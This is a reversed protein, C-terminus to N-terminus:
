ETIQMEMEGQRKMAQLSREQQHQPLNQQSHVVTNLLATVSPRRPQKWTQSIILSATRLNELPALNKVEKPPFEPTCSPPRITLAHKTKFSAAMSAEFPRHTGVLLAPVTAERGRWRGHLSSTQLTAAGSLQTVTDRLECNGPSM